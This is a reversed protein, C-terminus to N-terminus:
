KQGDGNMKAMGMNADASTANKKYQKRKVNKGEAASGVPAPVFACVGRRKELASATNAASQIKTDDSKKARAALQPPCDGYLQRLCTANCDARYFM